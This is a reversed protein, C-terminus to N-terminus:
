DKVHPANFPPKVHGRELLLAEDWWSRERGPSGVGRRLPPVRRREEYEAITRRLWWWEERADPSSGCRPCVWTPPTTPATM